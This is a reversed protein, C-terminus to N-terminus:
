NAFTNTIDAAKVGAALGTGADSAFQPHEPLAQLIV